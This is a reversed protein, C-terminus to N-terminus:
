ASSNSTQSTGRTHFRWSFFYDKSQCSLRIVDCFAHVRKKMGHHEWEINVWCFFKDSCSPVKSDALHLSVEGCIRKGTVMSDLWPCEPQGVMEKYASNALRVRYSSDSIIAPFTDSEVEREVEEPKKVVHVAPPTAIPDESICGVKISSCVPRIPQPSIVNPTRPLQISLDKNNEEPVDAVLNLDIMMKKTSGPEPVIPLLPLTVLEPKPALTPIPNPLPLGQPFSQFSLNTPPPPYIVHHHSSSLGLIPLTTRSRKIIPPSVNARGRKRSRTPRTQWLNRLYPSNSINSPSDASAAAPNEPKPAIPRYRSMIEATRATNNTNSYNPVLTKIM